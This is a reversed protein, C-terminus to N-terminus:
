YRRTPITPPPPFPMSGTCGNSRWNECGLFPKGDRKRTKRVLAAGCKPCPPYATHTDIARVAELAGKPFIDDLNVETPEPKWLPSDRWTKYTKPEGDAPKLRSTTLAAQVDDWSDGFCGWGALAKDVGRDLLRFFELWKRISVRRSEDKILAMRAAAGRWEEPLRALAEPHIDKVEITLPFRDLLAPPLDSPHGNMTAVVTFGEEPRVTEGNPLTLMASEPDDLIAYLFTQAEISGLNVENIVYRAGTKWASVAPGDMWTFDGQVPIFHGRLDSSPTEETLTNVFVAQGEPRATIGAFTKGTGPPGWLLVRHAEPLLADIKDWTTSQPSTPM